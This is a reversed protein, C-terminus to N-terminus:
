VPSARRAAPMPTMMASARWRGTRRCPQPCSVKWSFTPLVRIGEWRESVGRGFVGARKRVREDFTLARQFSPRRAQRVSLVATWEWRSVATKSCSCRRREIASTLAVKHPDERIKENSAESDDDFDFSARLDHRPAECLPPTPPDLDPIRTMSNRPLRRPTRGRPSM